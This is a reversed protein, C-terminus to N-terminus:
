KRLFPLYLAEGIRVRVSATATMGDSDTATLTITHWGPTLGYTTTNQGTGIMGDRDSAWVFTASTFPPLDEIDMMTSELPILQDSAFVEGDALSDIQITPVKRQIM